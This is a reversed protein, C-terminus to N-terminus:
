TVNITKVIMESLPKPKQWSEWVFIEIRYEGSFKPTWSVGFTLTKQAPIFGSVFSLQIVHLDKDRIQVIYLMEQETLATNSIESMLIIQKEVSATLIPNGEVDVIKPKVKFPFGLSPLVQFTATATKDKCAVEVTYTGSKSTSSLRFSASYSGTSDAKDMYVWVTNKFPDTVRLTVYENPLAEGFITVLDDPNYKDKETHVTLTIFTFTFTTETWEETAPDYVKVKWTGTIDHETFSYINTAFYSGEADVSVSVSAIIVNYPNFVQIVIDTNPTATRFVNLNDGLNYEDKEVNVTLAFSPVFVLSFILIFICSLFLIKKWM